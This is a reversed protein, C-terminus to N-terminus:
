VASLAAKILPLKEIAFFRTDTHLPSISGHSAILLTALSVAVAATTPYPVPKAPVATLPHICFAFDCYTLVNDFVFIAPVITANEVDDALVNLFYKQPPM